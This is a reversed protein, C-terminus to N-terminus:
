MICDKPTKDHRVCVFRPHVMKGYETFGQTQVTIIVADPSKDYLKAVMKREGVTFGTGVRGIDVLENHEYVSVQVSAFAFGEADSPHIKTIIADLEQIYKTRDIALRMVSMGPIKLTVM